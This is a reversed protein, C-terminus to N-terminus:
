TPIQRGATRVVRSGSLRDHWSRRGPNGLAWLFGLGLAAASLLCAAFRGCCAALRLGGGRNDEVRINWARMGPTQGGRWWFFIFYAAIQAVLFVRYVASGAPVAGDGRVILVPFSTMVLVGGLLLLDYCAAALRRPLGAAPPAPSMPSDQAAIRHQGDSPPRAEPAQVRRRPSAQRERRSDFGRKLRSLAADQVALRLSRASMGADPLALPSSNYTAGVMECALARM